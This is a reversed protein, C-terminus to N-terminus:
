FTRTVRLEIRRRNELQEFQKVRSMSVKAEVELSRYRWSYGARLSYGELDNLSSRGEWDHNRYDAEVSLVSRGTMNAMLSASLDLAELREATESFTSDRHSGRIQTRWNHWPSWSLSMTETLTEVPVFVSDVNEYEIGAQLFRWKVEGGIGYRELSELRIGTAGSLLEQERLGYKGHLVLWQWLELRPTFELTTTLLKYGAGSGNARAVARDAM